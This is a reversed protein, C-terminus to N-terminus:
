EDFLRTNQQYVEPLDALYDTIKGNVNVNNVFCPIGKAKAETVIHEIWEQRCPRANEGSECGVVIWDINHCHNLYDYDELLPEFAVFRKKVCKCAELCEIREIHRGSECTVGFAMRNLNFRYHRGKIRDIVGPNDFYAKLREARKTLFLFHKNHSEYCKRLVADIVKDPIDPHFLDGQSCVMILEPNADFSKNLQKKNIRIDFTLNPEAKRRKEILAKAICHDCGESCPTCGTVPNWARDWYKM